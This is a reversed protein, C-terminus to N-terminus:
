GIMQNTLCSTSSVKCVFPLKEPCKFDNWAGNPFQNFTACAERVGQFNNPEGSSWNVFDLSSGDTWLFSRDKYSDSAGIWIINRNCLNLIFDNEEVSHLSALHGGPIQRQCYLEAEIWPLPTAIYKYYSSFFCSWGNTCSTSQEAAKGASFIMVLLMVVETAKRMMNAGQSAVIFETRETCTKRQAINIRRHWGQLAARLYHSRKYM